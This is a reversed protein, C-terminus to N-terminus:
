FVPGAGLPLTFSFSAGGGPAEEVWIRGGHAEILGKCIYLGLGSGTPGPHAPFAAHPRRYFKDFISQRLDAPIGEGEDTVSVRVADGAEAGSIRIVGGETYKLANEVLNTLVQEVKDPDAMVEPLGEPVECAISHAGPIPGLHETVREAIATLRVPQRRLELRGEELRSLDLLETILRTVRDADSEITALIERRREDDFREWRRVLTAAFGKISTLPSRLEHAVSSIVDSKARDVSKRHKIDRLAAVMEGPRDASMDFKAVTIGTWIDSGDRAKLILDREADPAAPDEVRIGADRQTDSPRGPAQPFAISDGGPLRPWLLENADKGEAEAASWGFMREAAGYWGTIKGRDDFTVIADPLSALAEEPLPM